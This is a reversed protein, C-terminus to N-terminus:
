PSAPGADVAACPAVGVAIRWGGAAVRDVEVDTRDRALATIIERVVTVTPDVPPAAPRSRGRRPPGIPPAPPAPVAVCVHLGPRGETQALVRAAAVLWDMGDAAPAEIVAPSLPRDDVVVSQGLQDTWRQGLLARGADGLPPGLHAVEIALSTSAPDVRIRLDVIPGAALPWSDTLGGIEALLVAAPEPGVVPTPVPPPTVVARLQAAMADLSAADPVAIVELVPPRGALATIQSRLGSAVRRADADGGVLFLRVRVTGAHVELTQRVVAGPVERLLAEVEGRVRVQWSVEELARRLPVIIAALLVLPILLRTLVGLRRGVMRTSLRAARHAISTGSPAALVDDEIAGAHVQGYGILLVACATVAIIAAFNATFLLLAGQLMAHDANGLGYGATCLPPVLSIGIATGAAAAIADRGQRVTTYVAALACAVAIFLDIMTPSTRAVLEATLEHFPLLRTVGAAGLVVVAVSILTRLSARISLLLSGTALGIGLELLPQMLPSILMAGIVVAASNMALGLTAITMSLVLQLWYGAADATSRRLMSEVVSVRDAPTVGLFAAARDEFRELLAWRMRGPRATVGGGM